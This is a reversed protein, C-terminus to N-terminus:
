SFDYVFSEKLSASSLHPFGEVKLSPKINNLYTDMKRKMGCRKKYALLEKM